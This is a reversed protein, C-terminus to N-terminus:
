LKMGLIMRAGKALTRLPGYREMMIKLYMAQRDRPPIRQDERPRLRIAAKTCTSACLGCGICRQTDVVALKDEVGVADM